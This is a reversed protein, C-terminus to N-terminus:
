SQQTTEPRAFRRRYRGMSQGATDSHSLGDHANAQAASFFVAWQKALGESVTVDIRAQRLKEQELAYDLQTQSKVGALDLVLKTPNCKSDIINIESLPVYNKLEASLKKYEKQQKKLDTMTKDYENHDYRANDDQGEVAQSMKLEFECRKNQSKFLEIATERLQDHKESIQKADLSTTSHQFEQRVLNDLHHQFDSGEVMKNLDTEILKLYDGLHSSKAELHFNLPIGWRIVFNRQHKESFYVSAMQLGYAGCDAFPETSKIEYIPKKNKLLTQFPAILTEPMERCNERAGAFKEFENLLKAFETKSEPTVIYMGWSRAIGKQLTSGYSATAYHQHSSKGQTKPIQIIIQHSKSQVSDNKVPSKIKGTLSFDGSHVIHTGDVDLKREGKEYYAVKKSPGDVIITDFWDGRQDSYSIIVSNKPVLSAVPLPLYQNFTDTIVQRADKTVSRTVTANEISGLQAVAKTESKKVVAAKAFLDQQYQEPTVGLCVMTRINEGGKLDMYVPAAMGGSWLAIGGAQWLQPNNSIDNSSLKTTAPLIRLCGQPDYKRQLITECFSPWSVQSVVYGSDVQQFQASLIRAKDQEVLNAYWVKTNSDKSDMVKIKAEIPSELEIRKARATSVRTINRQQLRLLINAADNKSETTAGLQNGIEQASCGMYDWIISYFKGKNLSSFLFLAYEEMYAPNLTFLQMQWALDQITIPPFENPNKPKNESLTSTVAPTRAKTQILKKLAELDQEETKLSLDKNNDLNLPSQTLM